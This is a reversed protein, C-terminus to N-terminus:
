KKLTRIYATLDAIQADTLKGKYAPMKGKGNAIEATLDADSMAKVEAGNLPKSGMMAKSGDAGHCAACKAKYIDAAKDQGFAPVVLTLALILLGASLAKM